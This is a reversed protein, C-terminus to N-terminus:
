LKAIDNVAKGLTDDNAMVVKSTAEYARFATILNVMEGVPNVNSEELAGQVVRPNAPVPQQNTTFLNDGQKLIQRQNLFDVVQLRDMLNGGSYVDGRENITIEDGDPLYIPGNQGLVNYGEATVLYGREDRTFSGDRTYRIGGPTQVAFFGQGALALDLPNSTNKIPGQSIDTNIEDLLVGTGLIGIFPRPDIKEGPSVAIPDDIRNIDMEPFTRFIARDKKYGATNINALNNSIVDTRAMESLMGSAATYLGRIM